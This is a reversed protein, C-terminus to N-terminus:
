DGFLAHRNGSPWHSRASLVRRSDAACQSHGRAGGYRDFHNLIFHRCHFKTACQGAADIAQSILTYQRNNRFVNPIAYSWVTANTSTSTNLFYPTSQTVNFGAGDFWSQDSPSFIAVVVNSNTHNDIATGSITPLSRIATLGNAPVVITATPSVIDFTFATQGQDTQNGALDTAVQHVSYFRNNEWAGTGTNILFYDTTYSWLNGSVHTATLDTSPPTPATFTSAQWNWYQGDDRIAHFIVSAITGPPTDTVNGSLIPLTNLYASGNPATVAVTPATNDVVFTVAPKLVEQGAPNIAMSKITYNRNGNWSGALISMSWNGTILNLSTVGVFGNNAWGATSAWVSGTWYLDDNGTGCVLNPGCDIIQVQVTTANLSNGFIDNQAASPQWNPNSNNPSVITSSAAGFQYLFQVYSSANPPNTFNSDGPFVAQNTASDVAMAFIQYTNGITFTPTSVGTVTWAAAVIPTSIFAGTPPADTGGLGAYGPSFSMAVPDWWKNTGVDRYAIQVFTAVGLGTDSATGSISSLNNTPSTSPVVILAAPATTDIVFYHYNVSGPVAPTVEQTGVITYPDTAQRANSFAQSM